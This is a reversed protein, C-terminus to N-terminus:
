SEESHTIHLKSLLEPSISEAYTGYADMLTGKVGDETEIAFLVANDEPDTMGEFRYTEVVNFQEPDYLSQRAKCELCNELLNFDYTFGRDQLDTLAQSLTDYSRM